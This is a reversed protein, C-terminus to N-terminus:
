IDSSPMGESAPDDCRFPADDRAGHYAYREGAHELVLRYGPVIAQTYSMGPEPCGLSGDSWDVNGGEVVAIEDATVGLHAALDDKAATVWREDVGTEVDEGSGEGDTATPADTPDAPGTPDGSDGGCGALTVVLLLTAATLTRM